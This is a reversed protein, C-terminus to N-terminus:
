PRPLASEMFETVDKKLKAHSERDIYMMHGAQYFQWSINKHSEPHVGMHNFSYEAAFYPTALDYYGACVLVKLHPNKAFANRLQGSTSVYSNQAGWTWPVIGGSIYYTTDTKYGLESRVYDLFMAQVPPRPLTSSPDFDATEGANMPSPGTLRGDLRGVTLRKDHLLQRTFQQVGYRMESDDIYRADLGTYRVLKEIVTKRDAPTLLDGKNLAELYGTMAWNESEKLTTKLDKQLDPAVRKHYWADATFTPLLLAYGLGNVLSARDVEYDLITSILIVGNFAIGQDILQGALGAARFTGYSEGALFLPSTWRSNRTIYLRIFEGFAQLDGSMSNYKAALETTRARSYGTGIADIFVLDTEELWTQDNDVLNYPPPPMDGNDALKARKPGMAGMHVWVSASGPGGNFAFTVPRKAATAGDLTYAIYFVYAEIEGSANMIPMQGTTATYTLTKGGLKIEHHTVIPTEDLKDAIPTNGGGGGRTANADPQNARQGPLPTEGPNAEGSRRGGGRGFAIIPVCLFLSLLAIKM